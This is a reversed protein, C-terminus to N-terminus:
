KPKAMQEIKEAPVDPGLIVRIAAELVEDRGAKIGAVTPKVEIDPVIGVRQTPRKDPYFVGIGSVMSRLGGPLPIQSVNGDAGATTSGVVVAGPRARFAMSTYEAQSQTAEDVLIVVKGDYHPAQPTLALPKTWHFAGPNSLDGSTFRVFDTTSAVLLSGLEFVMFASPYNRIDIVLGKTGAARKVYSAAEGQKVSSLKFYAVDPTLLQFTEGPRDHFHSRRDFPVTPVCDATIDLAQGNRLIRLWAPGCDGRTLFHAIDRLRTPQNSAAYYQGWSLVLQSVASGDLHTVVDGVKLGIAEGADGLYGTVVPAGEIFRLKVPIWCPGVPPRVDLSSWLNAHTDHVRAILAMM